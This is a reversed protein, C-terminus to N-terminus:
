YSATLYAHTPLITFFSRVGLGEYNVYGKIYVDFLIIFVFM